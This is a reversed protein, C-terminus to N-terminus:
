GCVGSGPAITSPAAYLRAANQKGSLSKIENAAQHKRAALLAGDSEDRSLINRLLSNIESLLGTLVDREELPLAAYAADWNRRLPALEDNLRALKSVITQRETLLSLLLEPREDSILDHQQTALERLRLYLDRQLTLLAVAKGAPKQSTFSM